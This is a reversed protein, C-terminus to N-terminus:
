RRILLDLDPRVTTEFQCSTMLPRPAADARPLLFFAAADLFRPEELPLPPPLLLFFLRQTIARPPGDSYLM